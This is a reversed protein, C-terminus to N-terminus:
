NEKNLKKYIIIDKCGLGIESCIEIIHFPIPIINKKKDNTKVRIIDINVALIGSSKLIRNCERFVNELMKLYEEYTQHYNEPSHSLQGKQEKLVSYDKLNYYPPSTLILQISNDEVECMNTSNKFYVLIKLDGDSLDVKYSKDNLNKTGITRESM